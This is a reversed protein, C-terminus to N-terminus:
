PILTFRVKVSESTNGALDISIIQWDLEKPSPGFKFEALMDNAEFPSITTTSFLLRDEEMILLSDIVSFTNGDIPVDSSQWRFKLNGSQLDMTDNQAPSTLVPVLPPLTDVVLFRHFWASETDVNEARIRWAHVGQTLGLRLENISTLTDFIFDPKDFSPSVLQFRYNEVERDEEWWFTIEGSQTFLSDSPSNITILKDSVDESFFESCSMLFLCFMGVLITRM